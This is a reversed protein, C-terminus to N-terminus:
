QQRSLTMEYLPQRSASHGKFIVVTGELVKALHEEDLNCQNAAIKDVDSETYGFVDIYGKARLEQQQVTATLSVDHRKYKGAEGAREMEVVTPLHHPKGDVFMVTGPPANFMVRTTSACGVTLLM